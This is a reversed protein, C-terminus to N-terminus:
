CVILSCKVTIVLTWSINCTFFFSFAVKDLAKSYCLKGPSSPPRSRSRSRSRSLSQERKDELQRRWSQTARDEEVLQNRALRLFGDERQGLKRIKELREHILEMEMDTMVRFVFM